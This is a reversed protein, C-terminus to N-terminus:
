NLDVDIHISVDDVIRSGPSYPDSARNTDFNGCVDLSTKEKFEKVLFKIRDSLIEKEHRIETVTLNSSKAM